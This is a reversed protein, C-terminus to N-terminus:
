VPNTSRPPPDPPIVNAVHTGPQSSPVWGAFALQPQWAVPPPAPLVLGASVWLTSQGGCALLASGIVWHVGGKPANRPDDGSPQPSSKDPTSHKATHPLTCCSPQSVAKPSCCCCSGNAAVDTVDCGCATKASTSRADSPLPVGFATTLYAVLTVGAQLRRRLSRWFSTRGFRRM